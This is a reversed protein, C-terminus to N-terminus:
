VAMRISFDWSTMYEPQICIACEDNSARLLNAQFTPAAEGMYRDLLRKLLALGNAELTAHGRGRVGKYPPTEISIDFACKPDRALARVIASNPKAAAWIAGDIWIHWLPTLIPFGSAGNVALRMPVDTEQIFAVAEDFSWPGRISTNGNSM